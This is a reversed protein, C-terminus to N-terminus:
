WSEISLLVRRSAGVYPWICSFCWPNVCDIIRDGNEQQLWHVKVFMKIVWYFTAHPLTPNCYFVFTRSSIVHASVYNKWRSPTPSASFMYKLPFFIIYQYVNYIHKRVHINERERERERERRQRKKYKVFEGVGRSEGILYICLEELVFSFQISDCISKGSPTKSEKFIYVNIRWKLFFIYTIRIHWNSISYFFLQQIRCNWRVIDILILHDLNLVELLLQEIM